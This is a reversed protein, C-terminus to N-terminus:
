QPTFVDGNVDNVRAKPLRMDFTYAPQNRLESPAWAPTGLAWTSEWPLWCGSGFDEFRRQNKPEVSYGGRATGM